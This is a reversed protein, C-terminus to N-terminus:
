RHRSAAREHTRVAEYALDSGYGRRVLLGWARTRERDGDLAGFRDVLLSVAAALEDEGARDDVAAAIVEPAVGRRALDRVIRDSGWCELRRKDDAFSRAYREDDLLGVECLEALASEIAHVAVRKRELIGRLEAVTRERSALARHALAFARECQDGVTM